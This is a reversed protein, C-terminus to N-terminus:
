CLSPMLVIRGGGGGVEGGGGKLGKCVLGATAAPFFMNVM